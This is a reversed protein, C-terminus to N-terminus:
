LAESKDYGMGHCKGTIPHDCVSQVVYGIDRQWTEDFGISWGM